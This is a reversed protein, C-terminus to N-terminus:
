ATRATRALFGPLETSDAPLVIRFCCGQGPAATVSVQGGHAVIVSQVISLGLGTGGDRRSRGGTVRYFRDFVHAAQATTLGPGADRVELVWADEGRTVALHLAAYAPTHVIANNVLNAVVQRLRAEDARGVARNGTTSRNPRM